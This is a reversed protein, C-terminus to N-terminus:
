VVKVKKLADNRRMYPGTVIALLLDSNRYPREREREGEKLGVDREEVGCCM